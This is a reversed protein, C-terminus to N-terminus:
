NRTQKSLYKKSVDVLFNNQLFKRGILMPYKMNTRDTLSVVAEYEKGFFSVKVKVSPRHEVEGNSSKVKKIKYIPLKMKKDYYSPHVDDLLQFHVYNEDDVFINDCHLANSDAGTDIKADLDYLELDLISICEINGVLIKNKM